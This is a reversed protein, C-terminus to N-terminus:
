LFHSEVGIEIVRVYLPNSDLVVQGDISMKGIHVSVHITSFAACLYTNVVACLLHLVFRFIAEIKRM